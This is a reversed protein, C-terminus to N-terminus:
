NLLYRTIDAKVDYIRSRAFGIQSNVIRGNRVYFIHPIGELNGSFYKRIEEYSGPTNANMDVFKIKNRFEPLLETNIAKELAQCPPCYSTDGWTVLVPAAKKAVGCASIAFVFLYTIVHKM